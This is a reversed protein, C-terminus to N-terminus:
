PASKKATAASPRAAARRCRYWPDVRCVSPTVAPRNKLCAASAAGLRDSPLMRQAACGRSARRQAAAASSDPTTTTAFRAHMQLTTTLSGPWKLGPLTRSARTATAGAFRARATLTTLCPYASGFRCHANASPSGVLKSCMGGSACVSRRQQARQRQVRVHSRARSAAAQSARHWSERHHARVKVLEHTWCVYSSRFDAILASLTEYVLPKFMLNSRRSIGLAGWRQSARDHVILVIHRRQVGSSSSAFRTRAPCSAIGTRLAGGPTSSCAHGDGPACVRSPPWQRPLPAACSCRACRFANKHGAVKSKFGAPYRVWESCRCTLLAALFCAEICKIPLGATRIEQATGMIQSYPRRKRVNYHYGRIFNYQFSSIYAQLGELRERPALGYVADALQPIPPALLQAERLEDLTARAVCAKQM